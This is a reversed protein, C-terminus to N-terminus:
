SIRDFGSAHVGAGSYASMARTEILNERQQDLINARMQGLGCLARREVTLIEDHLEAPIKTGAREIKDLLKGRERFLSNSEAWNEERLSGELTLTLLLLRKGLESSSRQLPMGRLSNALAPM